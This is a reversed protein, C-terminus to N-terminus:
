IIKSSEINVDMWRGNCPSIFRDADCYLDHLHLLSVNSDPAPLLTELIMFVQRPKRREYPAGRVWDAICDANRQHKLELQDDKYKRFLLLLSKGSTWYKNKSDKRSDQVHDLDYRIWCLSECYRFGLSSAYANADPVSVSAADSWIAIIGSEIFGNLDISRLRDASGVDIVCCLVNEVQFAAPQKSTDDYEGIVLSVKEMEKPLRCVALPDRAKALSRVSCGSSWTDKLHVPKRQTPQENESSDQSSLEQDMLDDSNWDDLPIEEDVQLNDLLQSLSYSSTRDFLLQQQQQTLSGNPDLDNTKQFNELEKFKKM